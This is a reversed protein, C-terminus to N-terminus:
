PGELQRELERIRDKIVLEAMDPIVEWAVERVLKDGLMEVVRRAIRDVDAESLQGDAAAAPPHLATSAVAAPVAVPAM